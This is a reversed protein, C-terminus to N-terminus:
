LPFDLPVVVVGVVGVISGVVPCGVVVGVSTNANPVPEPVEKAAPKIVVVIAVLELKDKAPLVVKLTFTTSVLALLAKNLVGVVTKNEEAQAVAPRAVM